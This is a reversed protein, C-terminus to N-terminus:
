KDKKQETQLNIQAQITKTLTPIIAQNPNDAFKILLDRVPKSEYVRALIGLSGTAVAGTVPDGGALWTIAFPATFASAEVGTEPKAGATAARRTMALAKVLGEAAKKDAADFFVGTSKEKNRMAQVFKDPTIGDIGGSKELVDQLIATKAHSRGEPTLEKYLLKIESPNKSLLMRKVAEPTAEGKKLVAKLVTNQMESIDSSLRKNGIKWKTFDRADGFAKIFEGMDDNLTGYVRSLAKDTTNKISTLDPSLLEEGLQKRLTEINRLDQGQFAEKYDEFLSVAKDVGKTKLSKLALIESDLRAVTNSVDVDGRGALKDIVNNKLTSYKNLDAGHKAALDKMVDDSAQAADTAGYNRLYNRVAEFRQDQQGSRVSGTGLLPIRETVAQGIKGVFTKPPFVDSTMPTVGANEASQVAAARAAGTGRVAQVAKGLSAGAGGTVGALEVDQVDFQGGTAAQSAEIGAQTAAGAVAAGPISAARGAPTFALMTAATRPIDSARFGPKIAYEKQDLSSRLLYNGKEDQRISVGPYNATIVKVAEEPNSFLTGLGTKLGAASLENMEPMEVWEPLAETSDVRREVGSIGEAIAGLFGKDKPQAASQHSTYAWQWAVSEDPADVEYKTGSVDVEFTPM